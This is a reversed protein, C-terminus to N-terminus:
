EGFKYGFYEIERKYLEYVFRRRSDTYYEWYPKHKSKNCHPLKKEAIGLKDCVIGLDEQLNEFRGVYDVILKGKADCIHDLQPLSHWIVGRRKRGMKSKRPSDLYPLADLFSSFSKYGPANKKWCSVTRDWPNRVFAFKFYDDWVDELGRKMRRATGIKYAGTVGDNSGDSASNLNVVKFPLRKCISTGATKPVHIFIGKHIHSIM